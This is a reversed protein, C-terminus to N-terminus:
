SRAVHWIVVPVGNQEKGKIWAKSLLVREGFEVIEAKFNNGKWREYATRGDEKVIFRNRVSSAHRILLPLCQHDDGIAEQFRAELADKM